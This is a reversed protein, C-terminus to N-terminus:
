SLAADLQPKLKAWNATDVQTVGNIVFTPTGQLKYKNTAEDRIATLAAIGAKDSTCQDFKARTMGRTRMFADLGGNAAFETIQQEQPLTALKKQVDDPLPKTFPLTWVPQQDYFADILKIAAAPQQCRVLLSPAFDVGNLIFTRYEYSVKGTAIYKARLEPVGEHAFAGCHSCTLSGFELLKVKADPNGQKFGGEPTMTIVNLWDAPKAASATTASTTSKAAPAAKSANDGCATLTFVAVAAVAAIRSASSM